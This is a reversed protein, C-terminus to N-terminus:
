HNGKTQRADLELHNERQAADGSILVHPVIKVVNEIDTNM